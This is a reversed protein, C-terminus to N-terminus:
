RAGPRIRTCEIQRGDQAFGEPDYRAHRRRRQTQAPGNIPEDGIKLLCRVLDDLARSAVSPKKNVLILKARQHQILKARVLVGAAERHGAVDLADRALLRDIPPKGLVRHNPRRDGLQGVETRQQVVDLRDVVRLDEFITRLDNDGLLGLVGLRKGGRSRVPFHRPAHAARLRGFDRGFEHRSLFLLNHVGFQRAVTSAGSASIVCAFQIIPVTVNRLSM